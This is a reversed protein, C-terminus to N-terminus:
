LLFLATEPDLAAILEPKWARNVYFQLRIGDPDKLFVARRCPHDIQREIAIGNEAATKLGRDLEAENWVMCGAHHLSKTWGPRIRLLTLDGISHTGALIAFPSHKDGVFPVLGVFDCYYDFMAEFNVAVIAAHSVNRSHFLAGEVVDIKPTQPYNRDPNPPSSVGPNYKPTVKTVIGSRRSRWDPVVDAYIEVNNGDPDNMYLSHAVDHDRLADFKKGAAVARRYGDVLDVETEVEFAIHNLGPQLNVRDKYIPCRVDMLTFDHYSNGNGMFTSLINPRRYAETFGAVSNYFAQSRLYDGVFLNVHGLRRPRFFLDTKDHQLVTTDSM